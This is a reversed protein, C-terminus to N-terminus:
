FRTLSHTLSHTLSRAGDSQRRLEHINRLMWSCFVPLRFLVMRACQTEEPLVIIMERFCCRYKKFLVSIVDNFVFSCPLCNLLLVLIAKARLIVNGCTHM